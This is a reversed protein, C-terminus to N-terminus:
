PMESRAAKMTLCQCDGPQFPTLPTLFRSQKENESAGSETSCSLFYVSDGFSRARCRTDGGSLPAVPCAYFRWNVWQYIMQNGQGTRKLTLRPLCPLPKQFRVFGLLYDM